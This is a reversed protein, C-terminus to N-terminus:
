NAQLADIIMKFISLDQKFDEPTTKPTLDNVIVDHLYQLESTYPDTFTPRIVSETYQEGATESLFLRTPLHRIYPTDFQVKVSKDSAYVEVHADFRGQQDTGTEFTVSFPGYDFIASLFVSGNDTARAGAVGNPMGLAERMASLDHSSLGCLLRYISNHPSDPALGTAESVLAKARRQKEEKLAEPIDDYSVVRSTPQIFYRNPGIIDRVRAYQIRDLGGIASAARVFSAAYRRMYGVMIKVDNRTQASVIADAEAQTLCMPKEIFVHKGRDAAAIAYEAHYEDSNLVFVVDLEDQKVLDTYENYLHEVRYREGMHEVLKPSIDCLAAIRFQQPLSELVPLHIVQAVEGLGIIGVNLIQPEM